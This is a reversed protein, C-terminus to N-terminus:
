REIGEFGNFNGHRHWRGAVARDNKVCERITGQTGRDSHGALKIVLLSGINCVRVVLVGSRFRLVRCRQPAVVTSNAITAGIKKKTVKRHISNARILM